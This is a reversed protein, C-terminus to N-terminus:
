LSKFVAQAYHQKSKGSYHLCDETIFSADAAKFM